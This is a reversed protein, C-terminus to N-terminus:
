RLGPLYRWRTKLRYRPYEAPFREQLEAEESAIRLETGAIYLVVAAILAMGASAVLGTAMLMAFFAFYIPHRLWSYAGNTVLIGAGTHRPESWLAWCFVTVAILALIVTGTLEVTAPRLPKDTMTLTIPLAALGQMLMGVISAATIRVGGAPQRGRRPILRVFAVIAIVLWAGLYVSFAVVRLRDASM